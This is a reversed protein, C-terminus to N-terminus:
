EVIEWGEDSLILGIIGEIEQVIGLDCELDGRLYIFEGCKELYANPRWEIPRVKKGEALAKLAETGTM